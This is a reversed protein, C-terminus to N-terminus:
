TPRFQLQLCTAIYNRRCQQGQIFTLTKRPRTWSWVLGTECKSSALPILWFVLVFNRFIIRGQKCFVPSKNRLRKMNGPALVFQAAQKGSADISRRCSRLCRSASLLVLEVSWCQRIWVFQLAYFRGFLQQKWEHTHVTLDADFYFCKCCTSPLPTLVPPRPLLPLAVWFNPSSRYTQGGGKDYVSFSWIVPFFTMNYFYQIHQVNQVTYSSNYSQYM